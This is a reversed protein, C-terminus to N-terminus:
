EAVGGLREGLWLSPNQVAPNWKVPNGKEL